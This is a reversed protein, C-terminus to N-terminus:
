CISSLSVDRLTSLDNISFNKKPIRQAISKKWSTPIRLNVLMVNLINVFVYGNESFMEKMDEYTVGDAGCSKGSPCGKVTSEIEDYSFFNGYNVSTLAEERDFFPPAVGEFGNSDACKSSQAYYDENRQVSIEAIEINPWYGNNRIVSIAKKRRQLWLCTLKEKSVENRNDNGRRKSSFSPIITNNIFKLQKSIYEIRDVANNICYNDDRPFLRLGRCVFKLFNVSWQSGNLKKALFKNNQYFIGSLIKAVKIWDGIIGRCIFDGHNTRKSAFLARFKRERDQFAEWEDGNLLRIDDYIEECDFNSDFKTGVFFIKGGRIASKIARKIKVIM